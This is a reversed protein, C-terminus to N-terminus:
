PSAEAEDSHKSALENLRAFREDARLDELWPDRKIVEIPYGKELARGLWDLAKDRMGLIEYTNGARYMIEGSGPAHELARELYGLADDERGVNACYGALDTLIEPDNPNVEREKEALQIARQYKETAENRKGPTWYYSSALNGWLAYYTPTIEVAREFMAAAKEYQGEGYYLYALNSVAPYNHPDIELSRRFMKEAEDRRDLLLYMAGLSSYGWMNDPTVEVVRRFQEAADEYRGQQYYFRGLDNHGAWSGPRLDIATKYTEEAKGPMGKKQYAEALGRHAAASVIDMELAEKFEAIAEDFRGARTLIRGLTIQAQVLRDDIAIARECSKEAEDLWVQARTSEYKRWYADGLGAYALAYLSDEEIAQHFRDIATEVNEPKEYRQLHGLGELYLEFARALHTGGAQIAERSEPNMELDLMEAVQLVVGDQLGALDDMKQTIVRSRLQRMNDTDVLNIALRCAGGLHQVSGTVALNVGFRRRAEGPSAIKQGRVESTPVVWLEGQFQELTTLKSSLVEVMGDCTPQFEPNGGVNMFPLVAIHKNTPVVPFGLLRKIAYRSGPILLLLLVLAPVGVAAARKLQRRRRRKRRRRGNSHVIIEGSSEEALLKLDNWLEAATQYRRDPNKELCTAILDDLGKPLGAMLKSPPEPDENIISYMVAETAEGRFPTVGTLMEYLVVGLSWIDTRADVEEGQAQEASMYLVTGVATGIRTLTSQGALKALGFDVIKVGGERTLIINAPKVDRHVIGSEHARQLGEAVKVAIWAAEGPPIPGRAIRKRLTEGPYHSMCIFLQGAPTEDIDHINCICPHDLASAAQAERIFRQKAESDRTFEFPLFKLAVNRRLRTDRARYVEGMGGGGLKELIRYHSITQGIM